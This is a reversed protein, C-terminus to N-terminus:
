NYRPWTHTHEKSTSISKKSDIAQPDYLSKYKQLSLDRLTDLRNNTLFQNNMGGVLEQDCRM